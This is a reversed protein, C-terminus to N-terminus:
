VGKGFSLSGLIVARDNDQLSGSVIESASASAGNVLVVLPTTLDKKISKIVYHINKNNADRSETSVVVGEKLFISSVKVAEDLLGGPNSRLDLIIGKIGGKKKSKAKLKKLAKGIEKASRRQFQILRIFAFNYQHGIDM